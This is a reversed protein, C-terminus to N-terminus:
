NVMEMTFDLCIMGRYLAIDTFQLECIYKLFKIIKYDNLSKNILHPLIVSPDNNDIKILLDRIDTQYISIGYTEAVDTAKLKKHLSEINLRLFTIFDERNGINIPKTEIPGFDSWDVTTFCKEAVRAASKSYNTLTKM